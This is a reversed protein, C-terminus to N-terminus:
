EQDDEMGGGGRAARAGLKVKVLLAHPLRLFFDCLLEPVNTLCLRSGNWSKALESGIGTSRQM